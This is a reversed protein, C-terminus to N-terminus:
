NSPLAPIPLIVFTQHDLEELILKIAASHNRKARACRADSKSYRGHEIGTAQELLLKQLHQLKEKAQKITM